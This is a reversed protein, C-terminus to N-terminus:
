HQKLRHHIQNNINLNYKTSYKNLLFEIYEPEVQKAYNVIGLLQQIEPKTYPKNEKEALIFNCLMAKLKRKNVAGTTINNDKNLMLGLNWNRGASSGYRTKEPKIKFNEGLIDQVNDLIIHWRFSSKASICIDDAYRTYVFHLTNGTDEILYNQIKVDYEIFILNSLLPSAPSGQPLAGNLCCLHILQKLLTITDQEWITIPYLKCLQQLVLEETCSPFFDKIDLKLFWHSDNEQHNKLADIHSRESVYAYASNHPILGVRYTLLTAIQQQIAKLQDCPANIERFGGTKKPIKFTSYYEQMTETPNPAANIIVTAMNKFEAEKQLAVTHQTDTLNNLETTITQKITQQYDAQEDFLSIQNPKNKTIRKIFTFYM